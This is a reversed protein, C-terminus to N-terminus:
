RDQAGASHAPMTQSPGAGNSAPQMHGPMSPGAAMPDPVPPGNSGEISGGHSTTRPHPSRGSWEIIRDFLQPSVGGYYAVADRQSPKALARFAGADLPRAARARAVWAAFGRDDLAATTFRMDAFGDGSFQGSSGPYHGARDARLSLQTIMGPMTTIMGGMRPVWFTNMVTGSTLRFHVPTGVPVALENVSAVGQAPYLFLWKWDLSVVEVELQPRKSVLRKYPDLDHSGVWAISGLFLIVLLPIVWVVFEIRYDGHFDLRRTAKANGARFWWAFGITLVIVPVIIAMMEVFAELMLQREEMAVPGVPALVGDSCSALLLAAFVAAARATVVVADTGSRVRPSIKDRSWM